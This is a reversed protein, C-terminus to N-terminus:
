DDFHKYANRKRRNLYVNIDKRNFLMKKLGMTSYPLPDATDSTLM